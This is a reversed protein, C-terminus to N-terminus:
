KAKKALKATLKAAFKAHEPSALGLRLTALLRTARRDFVADPLLWLGPFVKSKLVGTTDPKLLKFGSKGRGFWHVEQSPVVVVVYERVGNVDYDRKKAHLDIAASSNAIEVVLHPPDLLYGKDSFRVGGAEPEIVLAVDPQPECDVALITTTDLLSVVNETEAAYTGLLMTANVHPVGHNASVPSAMYVIGGILEAKFGDPTDEYLAHFTPQDMTDGNQFPPVFAKPKRTEHKVTPM